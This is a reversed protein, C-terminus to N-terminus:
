RTGQGYMALMMAAPYPPRGFTVRSNRARSFPAM